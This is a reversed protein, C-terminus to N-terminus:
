ASQKAVALADRFKTLRESPLVFSNVLVADFGHANDTAAAVLRQVQYHQRGAKLKAADQTEVFTLDGAIHATQGHMQGGVFLAYM